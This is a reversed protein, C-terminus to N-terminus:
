KAFQYVEGIITKPKNTSYFVNTVKFDYHELKGIVRKKSEPIDGKGIADM